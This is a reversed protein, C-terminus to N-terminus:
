PKMKKKFPALGDGLGQKEGSRQPNEGAAAVTATPLKGAKTRNRQRTKPKAEAGKGSGGKITIKKKKNGAAKGSAKLKKPGRYSGELGKIKRLEFRVRLYREISSMLNWETTSILSIALGQDGARGTRGIRHVYDDGSRPMDFNIVLDIGKVDLGRAALDTSVLVNVKSFRLLDMVRNRKEQDMEGHLVGATFKLYRLVGCLRDAQTRTNTFILAKDYQETTLLEALLREKHKNDDALLIQQTIASHQDQATSLSITTPDKLVQQAVKTIGRHHLTASYLLTQREARCRGAINLVDESFGMDLMRDAEDLILVELDNFDTSGKDLHELLRGPTAVILEPNKRIMARQYKFAEGGTVLTTQLRTYRSLAKSQKFIQRALERTPVLILARLGSNPAETTLLRNLTPLLYAATKGSGTEASVLLDRGELAVPISQSQVSTPQEFGLDTLARILREDLSLKSFM